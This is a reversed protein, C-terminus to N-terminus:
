YALTSYNEAIGEDRRRQTDPMDGMRLSTVPTVQNRTPSYVVPKVLPDPSATTIAQLLTRFSTLTNAVLSFRGSSAVSIGAAPWYCRGRFSRGAFATNLSFVLATSFPSRTTGTGSFTFTGAAQAVAPGTAGFEYVDVRNLTGAEGLAQVLPTLATEATDLYAAIGTAWTQLAPVGSVVAGDGAAYHLTMSFEESTGVGQRGSLVIRNRAVM